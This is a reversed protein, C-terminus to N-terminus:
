IQFLVPSSVAINTWPPLTASKQRIPSINGGLLALSPRSYWMKEHTTYTHKHGWVQTQILQLKIIKKENSFVKNQITLICYIKNLLRMIHSSSSVSRKLLQTVNEEAASSLKKLPKGLLGSILRMSIDM